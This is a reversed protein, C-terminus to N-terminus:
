PVSENQIGRPLHDKASGDASHSFYEFSFIAQKRLKRLDNVHALSQVASEYTAYNIVLGKPGSNRPLDSPIFFLSLRM